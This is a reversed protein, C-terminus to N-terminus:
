IGIPLYEGRDSSPLRIHICELGNSNLLTFSIPWESLWSPICVPFRDCYSYVLRQLETWVSTSTIALRLQHIFELQVVTDANTEDMLFDLMAGVQSLVMRHYTASRAKLADEKIENWGGLYAPRWSAM